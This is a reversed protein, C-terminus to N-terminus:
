EVLAYRGGGAQGSANLILVITRYEGSWVAFGRAIDPKVQLICSPPLHTFFEKAIEVLLLIFLLQRTRTRVRARKM